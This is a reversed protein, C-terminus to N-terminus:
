GFANHIATSLFDRLTREPYLCFAHERWGLVHETKFQESLQRRRDSLQRRQEAVWPQMAANVQRIARCRQRANEVTRPTEILRGKASVLDAAGDVGTLFREPQYSLDRWAREAAGLEEAAPRDREIPLLLTASVVMFGPPRLGFFREILLDTVQDYKAGGIGHIFLDGLALRSWLTTTLARTRLRVGGHQLDLLQEVARRGDGAATLSLRSEWAQRDSLVIEKGAARAFLHRRRPDAATWIWLPAELWDGEQVLEPVPHSVSRIHHARRYERVAQNHIIRFEPLRALLHAVFWQFAEGRCVLSQPVELTELGWEAELQHRAQALCAGLNDTEETRSCVLPWYQEILPEAVLPRLQEAARRGFSRFRERDEIKRDEFPIKPDAQDFPIAMAHPTAVTGGPIRLSPDGLIDSDIVLNVAVAGHQRALQGLAFNKFWVGPHFLRPQHGALYIPGTPDSAAPVDRYASTWKRAAALLEGRAIRSAKALSCGQLDYPIRDHLRRNAEVVAAVEGPSPEVLAERDERPAHLRRYTAPPPDM